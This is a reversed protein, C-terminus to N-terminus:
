AAASIVSTTFGRPDPAAPIRVRARYYLPLAVPAAFLFGLAWFIRGVGELGADNTLLGGYVLLVIFQTIFHGALLVLGVSSSTGAVLLTAVALTLLVSPLYALSALLRRDRRRDFQPRAHSLQTPPSTTM